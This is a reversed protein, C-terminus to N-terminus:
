PARCNQGKDACDIAAFVGREAWGEHTLNWGPCEALHAVEHTYSGLYYLEDDRHALRMEGTICDVWGGVTGGGWWPTFVYSDDTRVTSISVTSLRACIDVNPYLPSLHKIAMRELQEFPECRLGHERNIWTGCPTECFDVTSLDCGTALLCAALVRRM